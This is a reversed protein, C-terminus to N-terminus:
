YSQFAPGGAMFIQDKLVPPKKHSHYRLVPKVTIGLIVVKRGTNLATQLALM